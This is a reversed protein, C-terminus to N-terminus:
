NSTMNTAFHASTEKVLCRSKELQMKFCFMIKKEWVRVHNKHKFRGLRGSIDAINTCVVSVDSTSMQESCPMDRWMIHTNASKWISSITGPNDCAVLSCPFTFYCCCSINDAREKGGSVRRDRWMWSRAARCSSRGEWQEWWWVNGAWRRVQKWNGRM